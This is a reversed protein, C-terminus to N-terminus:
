KDFLYRMSELDNSILLTEFDTPKGVVKALKLLSELSVAGTQEFKRLTSAPVGSRNAMEERSMKQEKRLQKMREGLLVTIEYPTKHIGYSM